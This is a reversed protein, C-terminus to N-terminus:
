PDIVDWPSVKQSGPITDDESEAKRDAIRDESEEIAEETPGDPPPTVGVRIKQMDEETIVHNPDELHRQVLKESDTQFAQDQKPTENEQTRKEM